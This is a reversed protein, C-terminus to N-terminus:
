LEIKMNEGDTIVKYSPRKDNRINGSTLSFHGSERGNTINIRHHHEPCIVFKGELTGHSLDGGLHPCKADIAYYKGRFKALLIKKGNINFGAIGGELVQNGQPIDVQAM